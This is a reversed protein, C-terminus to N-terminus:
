SPILHNIKGETAIRHRTTKIQNDNIDCGVFNRGEGVLSVAVANTGTGVQPDIVTSGPKSLRKVLELAVDLSQQWDHYPKEFSPVKILDPCEIIAKGTQSMILAPRWGELMGSAWSKKYTPFQLAIISVPKLNPKAAEVFDFLSKQGIITLFLGDDKLWKNSLAALDSWDNKSKTSWVVDTLILDVSNDEVKLQRFDCCKININSPLKKVPKVEALRLKRKATSQIRKPRRIVGRLEHKVEKIAPALDDFEKSNKVIMEAGDRKGIKRRIGDKGVTSDPKELKHLQMLKKKIRNVTSQNVSFLDAIINDSLEPHAIMYIQILEARKKQSLSVPRRWMNLEIALAKKQDDSLGIRVNANKMWDLGLEECIEKRHHGDIVNKNEDCVISQKLGVSEISTKLETRQEKSLKPFIHYPNNM